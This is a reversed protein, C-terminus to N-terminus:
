ILKLDRARSVADSATEAFFLDCAEQVRARSIGEAKGAALAALTEAQGPTLSKPLETLEHMSIVAAKMEAIETDTFEREGHAASLISLAKVPGHAVSAGFKLGHKRAKKFIGFPDPLLRSSWRITGGVTLAWTTIPDRLLYGNGMYEETWAPPYTRFSLLPSSGKIRLALFFGAPALATLAAVGADIKERTQM